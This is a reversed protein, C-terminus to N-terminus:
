IKWLHIAKCNELISHDYSVKKRLPLEENFIYECIEFDNSKILYNLVGEPIQPFHISTSASWLCDVFETLMCKYDNINLDTINYNNLLEIYKNNLKATNLIQVWSSDRFLLSFKCSDRPRKRRARDLPVM